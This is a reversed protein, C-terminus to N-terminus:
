KLKKPVATSKSHPATPTPAATGIMPNSSSQRTLTGPAAAGRCVANISGTGIGVEYHVDDLIILGQDSFRGGVLLSPGTDMDFSLGFHDGSITNAWPSVHAVGHTFCSLGAIEISANLPFGAPSAGPNQPIGYVPPQSVKLTVAAESGLPHRSGDRTTLMFDATGTYTGQFPAYPMATFGGTQPSVCNGYPNASLQKYPPIVFTYSGFWPSKGDRPVKGRISVNFENYRVLSDLYFTGDENIFGSMRVTGGFPGALKKSCRVEFWGVAFIENGTVVASVSLQPDVHQTGFLHWNGNLSTFDEVQAPASPTAAVCLQLIV